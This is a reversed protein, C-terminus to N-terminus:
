YIQSNKLITNKINILLSQIIIMNIKLSNGIRTAGDKRDKIKIKIQHYKYGDNIINIALETGISRFTNKNKYNSVTKLNFAKMGCLPDDLAWLKKSIRSFVIESWRQQKDRVGVILDYGECLYLLFTNIIEPDHQGDADVTLVYEFGLSMATTLGTELSNDYGMNKPHTIVYAGANKAICSTNDTSCDDIVIVFAYKSVQKVVDRISLEENFAPIIVSLKKTVMTTNM